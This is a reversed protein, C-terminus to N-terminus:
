VSTFKSHKGRQEGEFLQAAGFKMDSNKLVSHLKTYITSSIQRKVYM